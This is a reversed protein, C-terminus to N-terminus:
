SRQWRLLRRAQLVDCADVAKMRAVGLSRRRCATARVCPAPKRTTMLPGGSIVYARMGGDARSELRNRRMVFARFGRSPRKFAM